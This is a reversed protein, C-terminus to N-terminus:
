PRPGVSITHIGISGAIEIWYPGRAYLLNPPM